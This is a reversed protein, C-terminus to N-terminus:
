TFIMASSPLSSGAAQGTPSGPQASVTPTPLINGLMAASIVPNNPDAPSQLVNMESTVGATAAKSIKFGDVFEKTSKNYVGTLYRLHIVNEILTNRDLLRIEEIKMENQAVSLENVLRNTDDKQVQSRINKYVDQPIVTELSFAM